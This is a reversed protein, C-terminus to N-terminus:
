GTKLLKVNSTIGLLVTPLSLTIIPPTSCFSFYLSKKQLLKATKAIPREIKESLNEFFPIISEYFERMTNSIDELFEFNIASSLVITNASSDVAKNSFSSLVDMDKFLVSGGWCANSSILSFMVIIAVMSYVFKRM